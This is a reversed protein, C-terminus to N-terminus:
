LPTVSPGKRGTVNAICAFPVELKEPHTDDMLLTLQKHGCCLSVLQETGM